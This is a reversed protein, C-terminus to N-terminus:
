FLNIVSNTMLAGCLKCFSFKEDKSTKNQIKDHQCRTSKLKRENSNPM